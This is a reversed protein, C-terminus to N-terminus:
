RNGLEASRVAEVCLGRLGQLDDAQIGLKAAAALLRQELQDVRKLYAPRQNDDVIVLRVNNQAAPPQGHPVPQTM